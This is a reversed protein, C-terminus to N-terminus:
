APPSSASGCHANPSQDQGAPSITREETDWWVKKLTNWRACPIGLKDIM